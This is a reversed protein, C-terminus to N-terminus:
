ASNLPKVAQRLKTNDTQLVGDELYGTRFHFAIDLVYILDMTYDMSFWIIMNGRNIEEFAFRYVIVWFNYLFAISVVFSWWYAAYFFPKLLLFDNYPIM